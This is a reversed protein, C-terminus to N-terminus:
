VAELKRIAEEYMPKAIEKAKESTIREYMWDFKNQVKEKSTEGIKKNLFVPINNEFFSLSDADKLLNQDEDGGEEHKSILKKVRTVLEKDAGETELFDAVLLAGREQHMRLFDKDTFGHENNKIQKYTEEDRLAREVDHALGSIMLADDADPRLSKIWDATRQLHKVSHDVVGEKTFADTVFYEVKSYLDSM